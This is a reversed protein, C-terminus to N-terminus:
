TLREVEREVANRTESKTLGYMEGVFELFERGSLKDYLYPQDPVYGILRSAERPNQVVDFPGVEVTGREEDFSFIQDEPCSICKSLFIVRLTGCHPLRHSVM